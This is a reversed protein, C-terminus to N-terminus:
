LTHFIVSAVAIAVFGEILAVASNQQVIADDLKIKSLLLFDVVLRVVPLAVLAIVADIFFLSISQQWSVFEGVLAHLLIIGLAIKTASFSISAAVNGKELEQQLDFRTLLDYLKSFVILLVQGLLYFVLASLMSGEGTLAGAIVLGAAIYSAGQALGVALSQHEIIQQKNCFKSLLFKDNIVRAILLMVLGMASYISVSILDNILGKSPGKLVAIYILTIALIYGTISAALATNKHQIIQEFTDYPTTFNYLWKATCIVLLFLALFSANELYYIFDVDM